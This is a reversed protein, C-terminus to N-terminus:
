ALLIAVVSSIIISLIPRKKVFDTIQYYVGKKIKKLENQVKEIIEKEIKYKPITKLTEICSHCLQPKNLSYIINTKIGNMDFICGRSEDHAYDTPKQMTPIREGYRKYIFSVSYLTRLLLNELPINDFNLIETMQSYTLCARNDSYRRFYYKDQIPVNTVALLIDAGDRSPLQDEINSDSFDWNDGDANGVFAVSHITPMIEFLASKWRKIKEFDISYPLYGLLV